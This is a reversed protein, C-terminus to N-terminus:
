HPNKIMKVITAQMVLCNPPHTQALTAPDLELDEMTMINMTDISTVGGRNFFRM